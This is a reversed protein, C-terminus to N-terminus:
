WNGASRSIHRHLVTLLTTIPILPISQKYHEPQTKMIYKCDRDKPHWSTKHENKRALHKWSTEYPKSTISTTDRRKETFIGIDTKYYKPM